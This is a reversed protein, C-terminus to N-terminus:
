LGLVAAPTQLAELAVVLWGLALSISGIGANAFSRILDSQRKAGVKKLISRLQTRLTAVQLGFEDAIETLKKETMLAAALRTEARSLGFLDVLEHEPTSHREADIVVIMALPQDAIELDLRLPAVTLVYAPRGTGRGVLMRGAAIRPEGAATAASILKTMKATEFSRRACLHGSQVALGDERRLMTRAARNMEVIRGGDDSIIIGSNLRDLAQLALASRWRLDRVPTCTAFGHQQLGAKRRKSLAPVKEERDTNM